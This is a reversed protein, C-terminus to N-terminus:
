TMKLYKMLIKESDLVQMIKDLGDIKKMKEKVKNFFSNRDEENSM